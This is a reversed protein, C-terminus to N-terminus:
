VDREHISKTSNQDAAPFGTDLQGVAESFGQPLGPHLGTPKVCEQFRTPRRHGLLFIGGVGRQVLVM